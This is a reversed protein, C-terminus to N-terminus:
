MTTKRCQQKDHKDIQAIGGRMGSKKHQEERMAARANSKKRQLKQM